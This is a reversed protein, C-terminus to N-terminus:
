GADKQKRIQVSGALVLGILVWSALYSICLLVPCWALGYFLSSRMPDPAIVEQMFFSQKELRRQSDFVIM